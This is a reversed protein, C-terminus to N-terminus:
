LRIWTSCTNQVFVGILNVNETIFSHKSKLETDALAIWLAYRSSFVFYEILKLVIIFMLLPM